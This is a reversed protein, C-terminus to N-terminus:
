VKDIRYKAYYIPQGLSVFREQYATMPEGERYYNRDTELLKFGSSGFYGLSDEYFSENDTKFILVGKDKLVKEYSKLFPLYTLRRKHTRKKPWPDSFHLYILDLSNEDFLEEINMADALIVRFNDLELEQAKKIARAVCTEERELGVYFIERNISASKTIFDGMGMGIEVYLPKDGDYGKLDKILYEEENELFSPVWKKKRMRMNRNYYM